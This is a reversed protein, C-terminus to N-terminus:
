PDPRNLPQENQIQLFLLVMIASLIWPISATRAVWTSADLLGHVLIAAIGGFVGAALPRALSVPHKVNATSQLDKTQRLVSVAMLLTNITLGLYAILGAVGLDVGIQLLLNHAHPFGSIDVRVPYLLPMVNAFNGIGIGTYSFDKIARYSQTWVDLRGSWGGLSGDRSIGQLLSDARIVYGAVMAGVAGVAYLYFLRPWRLGLVLATSALLALYGGRSQTLIIVSLMLIAALSFLLRQVAPLPSRTVALAVALPLIVVLVGAQINAHIMDGLDLPIAEMLDYIPLYFLRYETKWSTIIPALLSLGVGIMLLFWAVWKPNRQVPKWNVLAVHLALGVLVYGGAIWSVSPVPSIWLSFWLWSLLLLIALTLPSAPPMLFRPLGTRRADKATTVASLWRIPWFIFLAFVLMPRWASPLPMSPMLLPIALLLIWLPEVLLIQSLRFRSQNVQPPSEIPTPESMFHRM